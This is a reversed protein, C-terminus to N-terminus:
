KGLEYNPTLKQQLEKIKKPMDGVMRTWIDKKIIKIKGNDDKKIIGARQARDLAAALKGKYEALIQAPEPQGLETLLESYAEKLINNMNNM